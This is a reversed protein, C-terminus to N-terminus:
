PRAETDLPAPNIRAAPISVGGLTRFGILVADGIRPATSTPDITTMILRHGGALEVDIIPYPTTATVLGAELRHMLTSSHVIGVLETSRWDKEFSGCRDCVQQELDLPVDCRVCFPLVLEGRAAGDYLPAMPDGDSQPALGDDLLWDTATDTETTVTM